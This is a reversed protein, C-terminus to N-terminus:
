NIIASGVAKELVDQKFKGVWQAVVQGDKVLYFAPVVRVKWAAWTQSSDHLVPNAFKNKPLFKLLDAKKEDISVSLVEFGKGAFKERVKEVIPKMEKCPGCWTAWFDVLITTGKFSEATWHKGDVDTLDFAPMPRPLVPPLFADPDKKFTEVEKKSCFYYTTGKYRLGAQPREEGHSEGNAMCVACVSSRPLDGKPVEVPKDQLVM